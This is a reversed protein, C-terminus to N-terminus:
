ANTCIQEILKKELDTQENQSKITRLNVTIFLNIYDLDNPRKFFVMQSSFTMSGM